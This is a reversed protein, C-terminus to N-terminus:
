RRRRRSRDSLDGGVVTGGHELLPTAHEWCAYWTRHGQAVVVEARNRCVYCPQREPARVVRM